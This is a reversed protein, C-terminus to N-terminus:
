SAKAKEETVLISAIKECKMRHLAWDGMGLKRRNERSGKWVVEDCASCKIEMKSIPAKADKFSECDVFREKKLYNVDTTKVRDGPIPRFTKQLTALVKPDLQIAEESSSSSVTSTTNAASNADPARVPDIGNETDCQSLVTNSTAEAATSVTTDLTLNANPAFCAAPLNAAPLNSLPSAKSKGVLVTTSPPKGCHRKSRRLMHGEKSQSEDRSDGSTNEPEEEHKRKPPHELSALAAEVAAKGIVEKKSEPSDASITGRVGRRALEMSYWIKENEEPSLVVRVSPQRIREFKSDDEDADVNYAPAEGVPSLSAVSDFAGSAADAPILIEAPATAVPAGWTALSLRGIREYNTDDEDDVVAVDDVLAEGAPFLSAVTDFAGSATDSPSIIAASM